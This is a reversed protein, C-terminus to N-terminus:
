ELGPELERVPRFTRRHCPCPGHAHLAALHEATGYGKHRAFGYVPFARDLEMMRRDRTVKALVSAAAISLSKGDGGVLFRARVPFDPVRLGDVLAMDPVDPLGEVARRMAQHTAALINIRDIEEVTSWAVQAVVGDTTMLHEYFVDRRSATLKKSDTLGRFLCDVEREAVERSFIVAAASVPGALPGRGAEDVGAVRFSGAM